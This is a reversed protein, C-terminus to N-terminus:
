TTHITRYRFVIAIIDSERLLEDITDGRERCYMHDVGPPIEGASRRYGLVRMHFAKARIALEKGTNGLGLIGMTKGYLASLNEMGPIGWQRNLQAEYFQPFRYTLALAFFMVHEALAPGSRGASSTVILGREFVEPRASKNLGAHDCHVWRLKPANIFREDLDGALVAVDVEELAAAIGQDDDPDVHYWQADQFIERLITLHEEKYKVTSLVARIERKAM